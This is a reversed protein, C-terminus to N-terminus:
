TPNCIFKIINEPQHESNRVSKFLLVQRKREDETFRILTITTLWFNYTKVKTLNDISVVKCPLFLQNVFLIDEKIAIDAMNMCLRYILFTILVIGAVLLWYHATWISTENLLTISIVAGSVSLLLITLGFYQHLGTTISIKEKKSIKRLLLERVESNM